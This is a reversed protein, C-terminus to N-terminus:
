YVIDRPLLDRVTHSRDPFIALSNIEYINYNFKFAKEYLGYSKM